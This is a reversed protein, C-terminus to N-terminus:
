AAETAAQKFLSLKGLERRVYDDTLHTYTGETINKAAHGLTKSIVYSDCGAERHLTAATHRLDYHRAQRPIGACVLKFNCKPCRADEQAARTERFKCSPRRCTFRYGATIGARVLARRLALCALNTASQMGGGPAPFCLETPSNDIAEKLVAWAEGPLPITRTRGTKTQNRKNSRRITVTRADLDVDEKRLAKMEGPRTGVLIQFVAARRNSLSLFPLFRRCEELTFAQSQSAPIVFGKTLSAPNVPGWEGNAQADRIISSATTRVRNLSAPALPGVPAMLAELTSRIKRPTLEGERLHNLPALHVLARKDVHLSVVHGRRSVWAEGLEGFTKGQPPASLKQTREVVLQAVREAFADVDFGSQSLTELM